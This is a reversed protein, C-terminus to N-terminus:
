RGAADGKTKLMPDIWGIHGDSRRYVVNVGGHGAHRFVLVPADSLDMAMVAASVTMTELGTAEEAIVTPSYDLGIEAEEDPAALVYSTAPTVEGRRPPHHEKLRSKYRRLRKEIREAARDFSQHADHARGEAQLTIGSDLHITCDSRFASGDRELTVHGAFGGDFYKSVAEGIRARVHDRFADGVDLNKGSIRLSM